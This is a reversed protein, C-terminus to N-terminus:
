AASSRAPDASCFARNDSSRARDASCFAGGGSSRVRGASCFAGDGSSRARDATCFAGDGSSRARDASCFAGDGSNRARGASCLAGDGPSRARGRARLGTRRLRGGTVRFYQSKLWATVNAPDSRLSLRPRGAPGDLSPRQFHWIARLSAVPKRSEPLRAPQGEWLGVM